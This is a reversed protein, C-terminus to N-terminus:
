HMWQFLVKTQSQGAYGSLYTELDFPHNDDVLVTKGGRQPAVKTSSGASQEASVMELDEPTSTMNVLLM